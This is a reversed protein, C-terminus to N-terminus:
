LSVKFGLPLALIGVGILINICNFVSQVFSSKKVSPIEQQYVDAVTMISVMTNVKQLSPYLLSTGEGLTGESDRRYRLKLSFFQRTAYYNKQVKSVCKFINFLYWRRGEINLNLIIYM